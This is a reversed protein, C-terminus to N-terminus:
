MQFTKSSSTGEYDTVKSIYHPTVRVGDNPFVTFSTTQEM